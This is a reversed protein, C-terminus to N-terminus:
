ITLLEVCNKETAVEILYANWADFNEMLDDFIPGDSFKNFWTENAPQANENAKPKEMLNTGSASSPSTLDMAPGPTFTVTRNRTLVM